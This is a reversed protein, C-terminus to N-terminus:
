RFQAYDVFERVFRGTSILARAADEIVAESHEHALVFLGWIDDDIEYTGGPYVWFSFYREQSLAIRPDDLKDPHPIQTAGLADRLIARVNPFDGRRHDEMVEILLQSGRYVPRVRFRVPDPM